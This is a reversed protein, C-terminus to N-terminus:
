REKKGNGLLLSWYSQMRDFGSAAQNMVEKRVSEKQSNGSTYDVLTKELRKWVTNWDSVGQKLQEFLLVSEKKFNEKEQDTHTVSGLYTGAEREEVSRGAAAQGYRHLLASGQYKGAYVDATFAQMKESPSQYGELIRSNHLEYQDILGCFEEKLKEDSIYTESFYQLAAVSSELDLSLTGSTEKLYNFGAADNEEAEGHVHFSLGTKYLVSSLGDMGGTIRGLVHEMAKVEQDSMNEYFGSDSLKQSFILWQNGTNGWFPDDPDTQQLEEQLQANEVYMNSFLTEVDKMNELAAESCLWARGEKSVSVSDRDTRGERLGAAAEAIRATMEQQRKESIQMGNKGQAMRGYMREAYAGM